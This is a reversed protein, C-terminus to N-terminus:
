RVSPAVAGQASQYVATQWGGMSTEDLPRMTLDWPHKMSPQAAEQRTRLRVPTESSRARGVLDRREVRTPM